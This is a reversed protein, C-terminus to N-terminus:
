GIVFSDDEGGSQWPNVTSNIEIKEYSKITVTITYSYGAQFPGPLQSEYLFDQNDFAKITMSLKIKNTPDFSNAVATPLIFLPDFSTGQGSNYVPQLAGPVNRTIALNEYTDDTASLEGSVVNLRANLNVGKLTLDEVTVLAGRMTEEAWADEAKVVVVIRSMMHNFEFRPANANALYMSQGDAITRIYNANFGRVDGIQTAKAKAWLVDCSGTEITQYEDFTGEAVPPTYRPGGNRVHYAYFTFERDSKIPYYHSVPNDGDDVFETKFGGDVGDLFAHTLTNRAEVGRISVHPVGAQDLALVGYRFWNTGFLGGAEVTWDAKTVTTVVGGVGFEVPVQLKEDSMWAPADKDFPKGEDKGQKRCSVACVLAGVALIVFLKKM